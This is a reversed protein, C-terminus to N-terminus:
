TGLAMVTPADSEESTLALKLLQPVHRSMKAGPREILDALWVESVPDVLKDPVDMAQGWTAPAAASRIPLLGEMDACLTADVRVDCAREATLLM